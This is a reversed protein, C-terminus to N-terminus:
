NDEREFLYNSLFVMLILFGAIFIFNWILPTEPMFLTKKKDYFFLYKLIDVSYTVPNIYAINKFIVPFKKIPYLAGSVFFM